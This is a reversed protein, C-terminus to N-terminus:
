PSLVVLQSLFVLPGETIGQLMTEPAPDTYKESQLHLSSLWAAPLTKWRHHATLLAPLGSPDGKVCHKPSETHSASPWPGTLWMLGQGRPGYKRLYIMEKKKKILPCNSQLVTNAESM